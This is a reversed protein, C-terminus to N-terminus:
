QVEHHNLKAMFNRIMKLSENVKPNFDKDGLKRKIYDLIILYTTSYTILNETAGPRQLKISKFIEPIQPLIGKNLQAISILAALFCCARGSGLFSVVCVTSNQVEKETLFEHIMKIVLRLKHPEKGSKWSTLQHVQCIVADSMGDPLVEITYIKLDHVVEAKRTNIFMKGVYQFEEANERFLKTPTKPGTLEESCLLYIINIQEQHVMYWFDEVFSENEMKPLQAVFLKNAFDPVKIRSANIYNLNEAGPRDLVVRNEDLVIHKACRNREMNNQFATCPKKIEFSDLFNYERTLNEENPLKDVFQRAVDDGIWKMKKIDTKLINMQSTANDIDRFMDGVTQPELDKIEHYESLTKLTQTETNQLPAQGMKSQCEKAPPTTPMKVVAPFQEPPSKHKIPTTSLPKTVPFIAAQATATLTPAGTQINGPKTKSDALPTTPKLMASGTEKSKKVIMRPQQQQQQQKTVTKKSNREKENEDISKSKASIKKRLTPSKKRVNLFPSIKNKPSKDM